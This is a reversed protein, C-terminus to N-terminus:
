KATNTKNDRTKMFYCLKLNPYVFYFLQRHRPWILPKLNVVYLRRWSQWNHPPCRFQASTHLSFNIYRLKPSIEKHNFLIAKFLFLIGNTHFAPDQIINKGSHKVINWWWTNLLSMNHGSVLYQKSGFNFIGYTHFAADRSINQKFHKNIM